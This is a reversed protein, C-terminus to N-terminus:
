LLSLQQPEFVADEHQGDGRLHIVAVEQALLAQAILHHRHCRHPDEESCMITTRQETTIAILRALARQFWARRAVEPYDVLELFNANPEPVVGYRYCTPDDPRGGLHQGAYRYEIGAQRLTDALVERNFQHAYQSYPVTRVDLVIQIGNALLVSILQDATANGHGITFVMHGAHDAGENAM